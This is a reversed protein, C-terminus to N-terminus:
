PKAGELMAVRAELADVRQSLKVALAEVFEPTYRILSDDTPHPVAKADTEAETRLDDLTKAM